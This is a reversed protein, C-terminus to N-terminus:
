EVLTRPNSSLDDPKAALTKVQQATKPGSYGIKYLVQVTVPVQLSVLTEWLTGNKEQANGSNYKFECNNKSKQQKKRIDPVFIVLANVAKVEM